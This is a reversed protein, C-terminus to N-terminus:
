LRGGLWERVQVVNGEPDHGDCLRYGQFDWEYEEGDVVGGHQAALARAAAISPVTFILKVATDERREPPDTIVIDAAYAAPIAHLVLQYGHGALIAYDAEREVLPLQTVAAYFDCVRGLYKAYIMSGAHFPATQTM